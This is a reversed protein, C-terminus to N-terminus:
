KMEGILVECKGGTFKSGKVIHLDEVQSDDDFCGAHQLADLAAKLVNDADRRRLDPPMLRIFVSVKGTLKQVRAQKVIWAVQERFAKGAPKIYRMKGSTGYYHNVSPPYPLELQYTM